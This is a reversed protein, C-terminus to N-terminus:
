DRSRARARAHKGRHKRTSKAVRTRRVGSRRDRSGRKDSSAHRETYRHRRGGLERGKEEERVFAGEGMGSRGAERYVKEIQDDWHSANRINGALRAHAANRAYRRMRLLLKQKRSLDRASTAM